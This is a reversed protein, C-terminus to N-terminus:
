FECLTMKKSKNLSYVSYGLAVALEFGATEGLQAEPVELLAQPDLAATTSIM